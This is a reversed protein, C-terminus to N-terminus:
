DPPSDQIWCASPDFEGTLLFNEAINFAIKSLLAMQSKYIGTQGGVKLEVDQDASDGAELHSASGDVLYSMLVFRTPGGGIQLDGVEPIHIWLSDISVGDLRLLAYRLSQLTADPLRRPEQDPGNWIELEIQAQLM